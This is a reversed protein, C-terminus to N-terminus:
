LGCRNKTAKYPRDDKGKVRAISDLSRKAGDYYRKNESLEANLADLEAQLAGTDVKNLYEGRLLADSYANFDNGAGSRHIADQALSAPVYTNQYRQAYQQNRENDAFKQWFQAPIYTNRARDELASYREPSLLDALGERAESYQGANSTFLNVREEPWMSNVLNEYKDARAARARVAFQQDQAQKQERWYAVLEDANSIKPTEVSKQTKSSGKQKRKWAEVLEDATITRAM